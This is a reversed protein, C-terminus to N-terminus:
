GVAAPLFIEGLHNLDVFSPYGRVGTEPAVVVERPLTEDAPYAMPTDHLCYGMLDSIM